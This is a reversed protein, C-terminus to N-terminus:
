KEKTYLMIFGHPEIQIQKEYFPTTIIEAAGQEIKMANVLHNSVTSVNDTLNFYCCFSQDGTLKIISDNVSEVSLIHHDFNDKMALFSFSKRLNVLFQYWHLYITDTENFKM